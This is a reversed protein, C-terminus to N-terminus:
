YSHLPVAKARHYQRDTNSSLQTLLCLCDGPLCGHVHGGIGKGCPTIRNVDTESGKVPNHSISVAGKQSDNGMSM